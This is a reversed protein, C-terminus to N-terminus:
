CRVQQQNLGHKHIHHLLEQEAKPYSPDIINFFEESLKIKIKQTQTENWKDLGKIDLYGDLWNCFVGEKNQVIDLHQKIIEVQEKSVTQTDFLEFYGQLWYCFTFQTM